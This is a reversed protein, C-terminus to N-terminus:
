VATQLYLVATRAAGHFIQRCDLLFTREFIVSEGSYHLKCNKPTCDVFHKEDLQVDEGMIILGTIM